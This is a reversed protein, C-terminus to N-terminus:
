GEPGRDDKYWYRNHDSYSTYKSVNGLTYSDPSAKWRIVRAKGTYALYAADMMSTGCYIVGKELDTKDRIMQLNYFSGGTEISTALIPTYNSIIAAVAAGYYYFVGGITGSGIVINFRPLPKSALSTESM